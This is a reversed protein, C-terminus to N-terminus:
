DDILPPETVSERLQRLQDRVLAHKHPDKKKLVAMQRRVEKASGYLLVAAMGKIDDTVGKPAAQRLDKEM